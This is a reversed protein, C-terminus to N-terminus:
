PWRCTRMGLLFVRDACEGQGRGALADSHDTYVLVVVALEVFTLVKQTRVRARATGSQRQRALGKRIHGPDDAAM